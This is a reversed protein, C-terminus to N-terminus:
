AQKWARDNKNKGANLIWDLHDETKVKRLSGYCSIINKIYPNEIITRLKPRLIRVHTGKGQTWGLQLYNFIEKGKLDCQVSHRLFNTIEEIAKFDCKLLKGAARYGLIWETLSHWVTEDARELRDKIMSFRPSIHGFWTRADEEPFHVQRSLVRSQKTSYFNSLIKYVFMCLSANGLEYEVYMRLAHGSPSTLEDMASFSQPFKPFVCRAESSVDCRISDYISMQNSSHLNYETAGILYCESFMLENYMYRCDCSNTFFYLGELKASILARSDFVLGPFYNLLLIENFTYEENSLLEKTFFSGIFKVDRQKISDFYRKLKDESNWNLTYLAIEWDPLVLPMKEIYDCEHFMSTLFNLFLTYDSLKNEDIDRKRSEIYTQLQTLETPRLSKMGPRDENYFGVCRLEYVDRDLTFPQIFLRSDVPFEYLDINRTNVKLQYIKVKNYFWDSSIISNLLGIEQQLVERKDHEDLCSAEAHRIDWIFIINDLEDLKHKLCLREIDKVSTIMAREHILTFPTTAQLDCLESPDIGLVVGEYERESLIRIWADGPSCGVYVFNYGQVPLACMIAGLKMQGKEGVDLILNHYMRRMTNERRTDPMKGLLGHSVSFYEGPPNNGCIETANINLAYDFISESEAGCWRVKKHDALVNRIDNCLDIRTSRGYLIEHFLDYVGGESLPLEIGRCDFLLGSHM